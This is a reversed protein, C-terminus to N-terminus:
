APTIRDYHYSYVTVDNRECMSKLDENSCGTWAGGVKRDLSELFVAEVVRDSDPDYDSRIDAYPVDPPWNDVAEALTSDINELQYEDARKDEHVAVILLKSAEEDPMIQQYKDYGRDGIQFSKESNGPM